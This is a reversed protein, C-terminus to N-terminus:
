LLYPCSAQFSDFVMVFAELCYTSFISYGFLFDFYKCSVGTRKCYGMRRQESPVLPFDDAGM